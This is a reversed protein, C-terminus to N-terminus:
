DPGHDINELARSPSFPDPTSPARKPGDVDESRKRRGFTVGWTSALDALRSSASASSGSVAGTTTFGLPSPVNAVTPLPAAVSRPSVTYSSTRRRNMMFNSMGETPSGEPSPVDSSGRSSGSLLAGIDASVSGSTAAQESIATTAAAKPAAAASGFPMRANSFRSSTSRRSGRSSPRLPPPAHAGGALPSSPTQTPSALPLPSSVPSPSKTQTTPDLSMDPPSAQALLRSLSSPGATPSSDSRTRTLFLRSSPPRTANFVEEVEPEPPGVPVGNAEQIPPSFTPSSPSGKIELTVKKAPERRKSPFVPQTWDEVELMYYKIGDGLGYPNTSPDKHSAVRETISTIRAVIWERTKLQEALQGTAQLFYHPFSVNFAAWPKSVSNRTPLFLALDGKAFNRFSIKGKARERYEKCQRQWKRITSGVKNIAELFHDHDFERLAELAAAPDSPDIPSPEGVQNLISHRGPSVAPEAGNGNNAAKNSGPHSVMAQAASLAKVHSDRFALAVDLIQAILRSSNELRMEFDSQSARGARLDDRLVREAHQAERLEHEVRQLEERLGVTDVLAMEAHARADKLQRETDELAAKLESFQHELVARDGDAEAIHDRIVRDHESAQARLLRDRERGAEALARKVEEGEMRADRIQTELDEGRRRAEELRALTSAQEELLAEVKGANRKELAKVLKFEARVQALEQRLVEAARTQETAEALARALSSRHGGADSSLETNREELIRRSTAESELQARASHLDRELQGRAATESLLTGKLQAIESQLAERETQFATEQESQTQRLEEVQLELELDGASSRRRSSWLKSSSLLTREAIRDFGPELSDMKIILRELGARAEKVSAIAAQDQLTEAFCELDDLVKLLGDIDPRELSYPSDVSGTPSFDVIPVPGDMGRTEFPLQGHVEGRYVQRRKRENASLKAMVELISQARQYFFRAFEKRRVIEVVTSGYAYLMNHLRQIYSFSTKAKSATQLGTLLAPLEVLDNNLTSIQRLTSICLETYSNKVETIFQLENRLSTDLQRFEQLHREPSPVPKDIDTNLDAIKDLADQSRRVCAEADELLSQDNVLERVEDTGQSLRSMAEQTQRFRNQLDEHTRACSEAVQKMKEKNVYDGLTRMHGDEMAKRMATSVFEKHVPVRAVIELDAGLGALLAAQKDLERVAGAGIGEFVESIALVHLDLATSAIHLASHQYQLSLLTRKSHEHLAHAAQLYSSALRSIRFPPTSAIADEVPPGLAPEARLEQLVANVDLDLYRKNFVYITQDPVGALDRINDSKLRRGDSIYALIDDQLVGTKEELFHELNDLRELEWLSTDLEIIQGNEARCLQVM